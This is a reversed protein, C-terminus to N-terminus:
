PRPIFGAIIGAVMTRAENKGPNHFVRGGNTDLHPLDHIRTVAPPLPLHPEPRDLTM